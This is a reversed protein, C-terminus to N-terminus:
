RGITGAPAAETVVLHPGAPPGDLVLVSSGFPGPAPPSCHVGSAPAVVRLRALSRAPIRLYLVIPGEGHRALSAALRGETSPELLVIPPGTPPQPLSRCRAGLLLDEPLTAGAGAPASGAAALEAEARDLDVTAWGVAAAHVPGLFADIRAVVAELAAEIDAAYVSAPVPGRTM